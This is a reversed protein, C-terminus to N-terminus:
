WVRGLRLVCEPGCGRRAQHRREPWARRGCLGAACAGPRLGDGRAQLPVGRGVAGAPTLAEACAGGWGAGPPWYRRLGLWGWGGMPRGPHLTGRVHPPPPPSHLPLSGEAGASVEGAGRARGRLAWDRARRSRAAESGPTLGRGPGRTASGRHGLAARQGDADHLPLVQGGLVHSRLQPHSGWSELCPRQGQRRVKRPDVRGAWLYRLPSLTDLTDVTPSQCPFPSLSSIRQSCPVPHCPLATSQPPLPSGYPAETFRSRGRVPSPPPRYPSKALRSRALLSERSPAKSLVPAPSPTSMASM